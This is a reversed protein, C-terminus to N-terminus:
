PARSIWASVGEAFGARCRAAALGAIPAISLSPRSGSPSRRRRAGAVSSAPGRSAVAPWCPTRARASSGDSPRSSCSPSRCSRCCWPSPRAPRTTSGASAPSSPQRFSRSACSCRSASSPSPSRSSSSPPSCRPRRRRPCSSASSRGSRDRRSGHPTRSRRTSPRCASPWSRPPSPHLPSRLSVSARRASSSAALVGSGSAAPEWFTSGASPSSSPPPLRPLRALWAASRGRADTRGVRRGAAGRHGARPAHRRLPFGSRVSSSRARVGLRGPAPPRPGPRARGPRRALRAPSRLGLATGALALFLQPERRRLSPGLSRVVSAAV